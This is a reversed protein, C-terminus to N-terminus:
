PFNKGKVSFITPIFFALMIQIYSPRPGCSEGSHDGGCVTILMKKHLKTDIKKCDSRGAHEEVCEAMSLRVDHGKFQCIAGVEAYCMDIGTKNKAVYRFRRGEDVCVCEGAPSCELNEVNLANSALNFCARRRDGELSHSALYHRVGEAFNNWADTFQNETTAKNISVRFERYFQDNLLDTRSRNCPSGVSSPVIECKTGSRISLFPEEDNCVCKKTGPDCKLFRLIQPQGSKHTFCSLPELNPYSKLYQLFTQMRDTFDKRSDADYMPKIYDKYLNDDCVEDLDAGAVEVHKQDHLSQMRRKSPSDIDDFDVLSYPLHLNVPVHEEGKINQPLSLHICCLFIQHLLLRM